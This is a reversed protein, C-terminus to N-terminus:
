YGKDQLQEFLKKSDKDLEDIKPISINVQVFHDGTKSKVQWGKGTLKLKQGGQIGAPINMDVKGALTNITKTCGYIAESININISSYINNDELKYEKTKAIKAKLFLDGTRGSVPDEHGKGKLRIKAGETVMAPIQVEFRGKNGLKITKTTGNYAEQITLLIETNIDLNQKPTPQQQPSYYQQHANAYPNQSYQSQRSRNAGGGFLDSINGQSFLNQFLDAFSGGQFGQGGGGSFDNFNFGTASGFDSGHPISGFQDYQQKKASDSLIDYAENIKKFKEEAQQKNDQHRDPHWQKTLKRYAKKIEDQSADRSIGLVEYYDDFQVM